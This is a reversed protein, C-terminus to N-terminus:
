EFYVDPIGNLINCNYSVINEYTNHQLFIFSNLPFSPKLFSSSMLSLPSFM